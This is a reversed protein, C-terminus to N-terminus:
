CAEAKRSPPFPLAVEHMASVSSNEEHCSECGDMGTLKGCEASLVGGASSPSHDMTEHFMGHFTDFM